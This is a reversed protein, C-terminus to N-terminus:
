FDRDAYIWAAGAGVIACFFIGLQHYQLFSIFDTM